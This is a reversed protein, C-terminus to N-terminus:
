KQRNLLRIEAKTLWKIWRGCNGCYLGTHIGNKEAFVDVSVCKPCKFMEM